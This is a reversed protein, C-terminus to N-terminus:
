KAPPPSYLKLLRQDADSLKHIPVALEKGGEDQLKVQKADSSLYKAKVSFNGSTDKWTRVGGLLGRKLEDKTVAQLVTVAQSTEEVQVTATGNVFVPGPLM